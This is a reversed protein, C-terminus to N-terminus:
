YQKTKNRAIASLLVYLAIAPFLGRIGLLAVFTATGIAQLLRLANAFDLKLASRKVKLSFMPLSCVLLFCLAPVLLPVFRAAAFPVDFAAGCVALASAPTPLGVFSSTQREDINFKALRLASFVALLFAGCSVAIPLGSAAALRYVIASPAIGFTALDALSDLQLGLPSQVGLLRAVFGDCFDFAAGALIFYVATNASGEFAAVTALCGCFLNCLTIANPAAKILKRM